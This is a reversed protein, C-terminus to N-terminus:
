WRGRRGKKKKIRKRDQSSLIYKSLQDSTLINRFALQYDTRKEKLQWRLKQIEKQKAKISEPDPKLQMWLLKLETRKNFVQNRLPETKQLHSERLTRVKEMQEPTLNLSDLMFGNLGLGGRGGPGAFVPNAVAFVTVLIAIFVIRKM